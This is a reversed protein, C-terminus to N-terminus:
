LDNICGDAERWDLRPVAKIDGRLSEFIIHTCNQDILYGREVSKKGNNMYRMTSVEGSERPLLGAFNKVALDVSSRLLSAATSHFSEGDNRLWQEPEYTPLSHVFVTNSFGSELDGVDYQIRGDLISVHTKIVMSDSNRNMIFAPNVVVHWGNIQDSRNVLEVRFDESNLNNEPALSDKMLETLSTSEILGQYPALISNAEDVQAQAKTETVSKQIAAHVAISTFFTAIDGGPYAIGAGKSQVEKAKQQGYFVLGNERPLDVFYHGNTIELAPLDPMISHGTQSSKQDQSVCASLFLAAGAFILPRM